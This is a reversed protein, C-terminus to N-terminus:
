LNTEIFNDSYLECYAEADLFDEFCEFRDKVQDENELWKKSCKKYLKELKQKKSFREFLFDFFCWLIAIIFLLAIAFLVNFFIEM